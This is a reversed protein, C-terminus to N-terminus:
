ITFSAYSNILQSNVPFLKPPLPYMIFPDLYNLQGFITWLLLIYICTFYGLLISWHPDIYNEYTVPNLGTSGIKVILDYLFYAGTVINYITVINDLTNRVWAYISLNAKFNQSLNRSDDRKWTLICVWKSISDM